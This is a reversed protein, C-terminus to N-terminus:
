KQVTATCHGFQSSFNKPQYVGLIPGDSGFNQHLFCPYLARLAAFFPIIQRALRNELMEPLM